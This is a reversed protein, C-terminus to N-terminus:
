FAFRAGTVFTFSNEVKMREDFPMGASSFSFNWSSTIIIYTIAAHLYDRTVAHFLWALGSSLPRPCIILTFVTRDMRVQQKNLPYTQFLHYGPWFTTICRWHLIRQFPISIATSKKKMTHQRCKDVCATIEEARISVMRSFFYSGLKSSWQHSTPENIFSHM